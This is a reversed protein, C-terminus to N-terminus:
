RGLGDARTETRETATLPRFRTPDTGYYVLHVREAPVGLREIVDARTRESNAIVVRARRLGASTPWRGAASSGQGSGIRWARRRGPHGPPTCTISGTSTVGPVTVVTSSSGPGVRRLGRARWRGVRALLPMGFLHKGWPRPIRHVRVNPRAELDDWARHTVLHVETGERRALFSALGYNACDMGGLPTFDGAILLWIRTM